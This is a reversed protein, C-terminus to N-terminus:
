AITRILVCWTGQTLLELLKIQKFVIEKPKKITYLCKLTQILQGSSWNKAHFSQCGFLQQMNVFSNVEGRLDTESQPHCEM